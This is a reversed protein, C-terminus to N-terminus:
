SCNIYLQYYYFNKYCCKCCPMLEVMGFNLIEEFIKLMDM